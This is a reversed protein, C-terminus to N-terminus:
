RWALGRRGPVAGASPRRAPFAWGMFGCVTLLADHGNSLVPNTESHFVQLVAARRAGHPAAELGKERRMVAFRVRFGRADAGGVSVNDWELHGEMAGHVEVSPRHTASADGRTTQALPVQGGQPVGGLNVDVQRAVPAHVAAGAG